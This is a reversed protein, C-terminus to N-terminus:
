GLRDLRAIVDALALRARRSPSCSRLIIEELAAPCDPNYDCVSREFNKIQLDMMGMASAGAVSPRIMRGTLAWFMTAGLGFVDTREDVGAGVLQEPAMYHPSGVVQSAHGDRRCSLGLDLLQVRGDHGVIIHHPKMDAHIVNNRHLFRLVDAAQRYISILKEIPYDRGKRLNDGDVFDMILHMERPLVALARRTVLRHMRPIGSHGGALNSLRYGIRWEHHVQTLYMKTLKRIDGAFEPSPAQEQIARVIEPTVSKVAIIEGTEEERARFVASGAGNGVMSLITIGPLRPKM